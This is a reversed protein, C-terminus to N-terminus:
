ERLTARAGGGLGDLSDHGGYRGQGKREVKGGTRGGDGRERGNAHRDGTREAAVLVGEGRRVIARAGYKAVARRLARFLTPSPFLTDTRTPRPPRRTM